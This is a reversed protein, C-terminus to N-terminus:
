AYSHMGGVFCGVLSSFVCDLHKKDVFSFHLDTLVPGIPGDNNSYHPAFAEYAYPRHRMGSSRVARLDICVNKEDYCLSLDRPGCKM